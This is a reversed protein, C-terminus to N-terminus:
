YYFCAASGIYIAHISLKESSSVVIEIGYLIHNEIKSILNTLYEIFNYM